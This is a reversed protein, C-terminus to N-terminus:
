KGILSPRGLSKVSRVHGDEEVAVVGFSDRGRDEARILISKLKQNVEAYKSPDM